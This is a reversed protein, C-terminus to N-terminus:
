TVTQPWKGGVVRCRRAAHASGFGRVHAQGLVRTHKDGDRDVYHAYWKRRQSPGRVQLHGTVRAEAASATPPTEM